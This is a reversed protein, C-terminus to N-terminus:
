KSFAAIFEGIEMDIDDNTSVLGRLKERLLTRFREKIRFIIKYAQAANALGHKVCLDDMSAKDQELKPVVLWEHFLAWHIARGKRDCESKLDALVRDLLTEAWTRNFSKEADLECCPEIGPHELSVSSVHKDKKHVNLAYNRLAVLLFNRFRGKDRDALRVLEQDIVKESFFGQVLDKAQENAYGRARLYSYLPKWYKVCLENLVAKRATTDM